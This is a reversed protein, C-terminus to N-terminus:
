EVIKFNVEDRVRPNMKKKASRKSLGFPMSDYATMKLSADTFAKNV